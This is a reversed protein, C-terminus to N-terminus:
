ENSLVDFKVTGDVPILRGPDDSKLVEENYRRDKFLTRYM